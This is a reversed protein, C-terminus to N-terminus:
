LDFDFRGAAAPVGAHGALTGVPTRPDALVLDILDVFSDLWSQVTGRRLLRSGYQWSVRLTGATDYIQMSLDFVSQGTWQLQLPVRAGAFDVHLYRESHLAILADFLPNRRYDRHPVLRSVLDEFPYDQHAFADEAVQGTRELLEAFTDQPRVTSRLCVTNAFMGLTGHLGAVTRGSAPTGVTIDPSGTLGSLLANHVAALVAFLTVGHRRALARLGAARQRGLDREVLDGNLARVAPRPTDVPLDAGPQPRAFVERWHAAQHERRRVGGPGALWHAYDRYQAPPPAPRAGAYLAALDEALIVLSLGDTILHHLELWLRLRDEGPQAVARWLPARGLDFPAVRPPAPPGDLVRLPLAVRDRVWQRLDSGDFGVDTRLADHRETLLRLATALRDVDVTSPLDLAVAVNYHVATEDKLQEVYIQRQQPTLPYSDARPAPHLAPGATPAAAHVMAALEAASGARLVASVPLRVGFRSEIGSALLTATLSDAGLDRLDHLMGIGTMGLAREAASVVAAEIEGTPAVYDVAVLLQGSDVDPLRSRDVKGSRNLPLRDVTVLHAPVLHTPLRATLYARLEAPGVGAASVYYGCLYKGGDPRERAVVAAEGVSPHDLLSREVEGPEIRFGRVKVQGDRRGLFELVGDARWRALDGSRYMRGGPVFPDPVFRAATLEPRNLYGRAVGAGGLCLEGPM